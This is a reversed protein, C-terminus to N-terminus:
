LVLEVDLVLRTGRAHVLLKLELPVRLEQVRMLTGGNPDQLGGLKCSPESLLEISELRVSPEQERLVGLLHGPLWKKYDDFIEWTALLDTLGAEKDFGVLEVDDSEVQM